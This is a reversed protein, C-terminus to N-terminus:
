RFPKFTPLPYELIDHPPDDPQRPLRTIQPNTPPTTPFIASDDVSQPLDTDAVIKGEVPILYRSSGALAARSNNRFIGNAQAHILIPAELEEIRVWVKASFGAKQQFHLNEYRLSGSVLRMPPPFEFQLTTSIIEGAAGHLTYIIWFDKGIRAAPDVTLTEAWGDSLRTGGPNKVPQGCGVIMLLGLIVSFGRQFIKM